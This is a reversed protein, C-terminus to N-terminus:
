QNTYFKNNLMSISAMFVLFDITNINLNFLISHILIILRNVSNLYVQFEHGLFFVRNIINLNIYLYTYRSLCKFLSM